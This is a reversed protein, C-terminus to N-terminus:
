PKGLIFTTKCNYGNTDIHSAGIHLFRWGERVLANADADSYVTKVESYELTEKTKKTKIRTRM